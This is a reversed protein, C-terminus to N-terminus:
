HCLLATEWYGYKQEREAVASGIWVVRDGDQLEFPPAAATLLLLAFM